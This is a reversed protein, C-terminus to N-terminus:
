LNNIAKTAKDEIYEYYEKKYLRVSTKYCERALSVQGIKQYVDGLRLAAESAFYYDLNEGLDITKKFEALALPYNAILAAYRGNLFHWEIEYPLIKTHNSEFASMAKTFADPYGGDLSLRAKVLNVDPPYDLGADYLAERDRENLVMGENRVVVCYKNYKERDGKLLYFLAFNYNMEKLYEKKQLHSLYRLLYYGAKPDGKRLLVKGMMYCYLIDSYDNENHTTQELVRKAEENKGCWYAINARFYSHIFTHSIGTDLSKTFDYLMEPTKNIKAALIVFLASEANIGPITRQAKYNEFLTKFGYKSDVKVGFFSVVWKVFPPLNAIAVNLFGDLKRSESFQPFRKLNDYVENYASYGIKVGKLQSGHMVDFVAVQIKMEASCSLYYPSSDDHGDMIKRKKEYNVLFTQYDQDSGNIILKFADCTQDLYHAYYNQPNRKLEESILSKAQNIQLDM